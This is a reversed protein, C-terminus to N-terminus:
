INTNKVAFKRRWPLLDIFCLLRSTYKLVHCDPRKM